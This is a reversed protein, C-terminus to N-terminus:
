EGREQWWANEIGEHKCYITSGEFVFNALNEGITTTAIMMLMAAYVAIGFLTARKKNVVKVRM